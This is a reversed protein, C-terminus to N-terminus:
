RLKRGVSADQACQEPIACVRFMRERREAGFRLFDAIDVDRPKTSNQSAATHGNRFVERRLQWAHQPEKLHPHNEIPHDIFRGVLLAALPKKSEGGLANRREDSDGSEREHPGHAFGRQFQDLDDPFNTLSLNALSITVSSSIVTMPAGMSRQKSRARLTSTCRKPFTWQPSDATAVAPTVEPRTPRPCRTLQRAFCKPRQCSSRLSIVDM